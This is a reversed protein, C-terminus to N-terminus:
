QLCQSAHCSIMRVGFYFEVFSALLARLCKGGLGVLPQLSKAALLLPAHMVKNKPSINHNIQRMSPYGATVNCRFSCSFVSLLIIERVKAYYLLSKHAEKIHRISPYGATLDFTFPRSFNQLLIIKREKAPSAYLLLVM